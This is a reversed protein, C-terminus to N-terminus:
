PALEEDTKLKFKEKEVRNAELFRQYRENYETFGIEVMKHDIEKFFRNIGHKETEGPLRYDLVAVTDYSGIQAKVSDFLKVEVEIPKCTPCYPMTIPHLEDIIRSVLSYHSYSKHDGMDEVCIVRDVDRYSYTGDDNKDRFLSSRRANVELGYVECWEDDAGLIPTLPIDNMLKILIDRTFAWSAGSHGGETLVKYAELANNYCNEAYAIGTEDIPRGEKKAYEEECALEYKIATDVEKQAWKLSM